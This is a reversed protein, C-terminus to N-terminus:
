ELELLSFRDPVFPPLRPAAEPLPWVHPRYPPPKGHLAGMLAMFCERRLQQARLRHKARYRSFRKSVALASGEAVRARDDARQAAEALRQNVFDSM